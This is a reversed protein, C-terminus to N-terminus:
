FGLLFTRNINKNLFLIEENLPLENFVIFLFHEIFRFRIEICSLDLASTCFLAFTMMGESVM